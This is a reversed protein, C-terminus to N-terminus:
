ACSCDFNHGTYVVLLIIFAAEHSDNDIDDYNEDEFVVDYRDIMMM